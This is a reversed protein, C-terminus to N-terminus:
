DGYRKGWLRGNQNQTTSPFTSLLTDLTSLLHHHTAKSSELTLFIMNSISVIQPLLYHTSAVTVLIPRENWLSQTHQQLKVSSLCRSSLFSKLTHLVAEVIAGASPNNSIYEIHSSEQGITAGALINSAMCNFFFLFARPAHQYFKCVSYRAVFHCELLHSSKTKLKPLNCPPSM